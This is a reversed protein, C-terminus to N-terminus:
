GGGPGDSGGGRFRAVLVDTCTAGGRGLVAPEWLAGRFCSAVLAGAAAPAPNAPDVPVAGGRGLAASQWRAGRFCSAVLGASAKEDADDHDSSSSDDMSCPKEDADDHESSSSSDDSSDDHVDAAAGLEAGRGLVAPEWLAGRFCSAVLTGAAAPAPNAPDVPVAGGRGLAASQWRAGRFCSAVLGATAYSFNVGSIDSRVTKWQSREVIM